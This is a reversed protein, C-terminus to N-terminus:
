SSRAFDIFTKSDETAGSVRYRSNYDGELDESLEKLLNKLTLQMDAKSNVVAVTKGQDVM